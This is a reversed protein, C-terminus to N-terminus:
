DRRAVREYVEALAEAQAAVSFRSAVRERAARGLEARRAPDDILAVMAAALHGADAPAVLIGGGGALQEAIGDVATGIVPLGHGMAELTSIPFPDRRSPLAFAIWRALREPVDAREAHRVGADAARSLVEGAWERELVDTPAGVIEFRAQPRQAGAIRAAAVFLDTGKRTSVVGVTGIVPDGAPEPRPREPVIAGEHVITPQRGGVALERAAAGSVAVVESAVRWAARVGAEGKRGPPRMEHVHFLVPTGTARAVTAEALTFLSNAHLLAPSVDAVTRRFARLYGPAAAVRARAGPEDRLAALSYAIPRPGGRVDYGEDQLFDALPSPKPAWVVFRWGREALHPFTRVASLTAGGPVEEHFAVLATRRKM